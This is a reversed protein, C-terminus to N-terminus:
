TTPRRTSSSRRTSPASAGTSAPAVPEPLRGPLEPVRAGLLRHVHPEPRGARRHAGGPHWRLLRRELDGRREAAAAGRAAPREFTGKKRKNEPVGPPARRGRLGPDGRGRGARGTGGREGARNTDRGYLRYEGKFYTIFALSTANGKLVAPGHQRGPRRHVARDGGHRPRPQPRQLRRRGRDLLLLDAERRSSFTPTVDDHAGFTLPTKSRRIPSRSPSIKDHGCVRRTYVM